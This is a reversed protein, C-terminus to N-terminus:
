QDDVPLLMKVIFQNATAGAHFFGGLEGCRTRITRLGTGTVPVDTSPVTSEAVNEMDVPLPNAATFQVSGESLALHLALEGHPAHKSFNRLSESAARYLAVQIEAALGTGAAPLENRYSVRLGPDTFTEVLAPVDAMTKVLVPHTGGVLRPDMTNLAEIGELSSARIEAMARPSPAADDASQLSTESHLAIKSLCALLAGHLERAALLREGALAIQHEAARMKAHAAAAEAIAAAARAESDVLDRGKRVNGAWAAPMLLTMATVLAFILSIAASGTVFYMLAVLLGTLVLAGHEAIRSVRPRGLLVLTFVAEFLLFFGGNSGVVLLVMGCLAMVTAALPVNVRRFLIALSGVALPLPWWPAHIAFGLAPFGALGLAHLLWVLAAFFLAPSLDEVELKGRRPGRAAPGMFTTALM